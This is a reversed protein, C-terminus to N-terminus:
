GSWMHHVLDMKPAYPKDLVTDDLVLVESNLRVEAMVELWRTDKSARLRRLL